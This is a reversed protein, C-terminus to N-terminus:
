TNSPKSSSEPMDHINTCKKYLRLKPKTRVSRNKKNTITISQQLEKNDQKLTISYARSTALQKKLQTIEADLKCIKTDRSKIIKERQVLLSNLHDIEVHHLSNDSPIKNQQQNPRVQCPKLSTTPVPQTSCANSPQTTAVASKM